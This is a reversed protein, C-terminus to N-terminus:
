GPSCQLEVWNYSVDKGCYDGNAWPKGDSERGVVVTAGVMVNGVLGPQWCDELIRCFYDGVLEFFVSGTKGGVDNVLNISSDVRM